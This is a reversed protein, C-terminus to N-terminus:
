LSTNRLRFISFKLHKKTLNEQRSGRKIDNQAPCARTRAVRCPLFQGQTLTFLLRARPMAEDRGCFVAAALNKVENLIVHFPNM